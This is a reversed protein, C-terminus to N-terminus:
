QNLVKLLYNISQERKKDILLQVTDYDIEDRQRDYDFVYDKNILRNSIDLSDLLDGVKAIRGVNTLYVKFPKHHLISFVAGHFTGTFIFKAHAFLDIWEFPTIGVNSQEYDKDSDGAGIVKWQRSKAYDYIQNKITSPLHEIYYFLIYDEKPRRSCAKSQLKFLFTPDLAPIPEVDTCLHALKAASKDRYSIFKFKPLNERVAEPIKDMDSNGASPAYSALTQCEIGAGFKVPNYSKHDAFNWVEDSGVIVIDYQLKNIARASFCLPSLNMFLARQKFLIFPLKYVDGLHKINKRNKYFLFWGLTNIFFHKVNIFNIIEVEADPRLKKIAEQLAYAQLFAGFNVAAHHTLIGIKM